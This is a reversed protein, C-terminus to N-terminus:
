KALILSRLKTFSTWLFPTQKTIRKLALFTAQKLIVLSGQRTRAKLHDYLDIKTECWDYKYHEDGITFDFVRVDREVAWKMTEVLAQVGPAYRGFKAGDYSPLVYYFRNRHILGWSGAAYEGAVELHSVHAVGDAGSKVALARYFDEYGPSALFDKAGMARLSKSKLSVLKAVSASIAEDTEPHVYKIEGTEELKKRRSRLSRRAKSNRKTNYYTDFDGGLETMHAGSANLQTPLELFPNAQQDVEAPQRMLEVLDHDPLCSLIDEWILSFKGPLVRESFNHAILPANYDNVGEGLWILKRVFPGNMIGLPLLMLPVAGADWVVVIQLDIKSRHGIHQYWTELFDFTQFASCGAAKEFQRWIAEVSSFETHVSVLVSPRDTSKSSGVNNEIFRDPATEEFDLSM